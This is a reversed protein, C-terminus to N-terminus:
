ISCKNKVENLLHIDVKETDDLAFEDDYKTRHKEILSVINTIFNRTNVNFYTLITPSKDKKNKQVSMSLLEEEFFDEGVEISIQEENFKYFKIYAEFGEQDIYVEYIGTLDSLLFKCSMLLNNFFDQIYSIRMQRIKNSHYDYINMNMWGAKIDSFDVIVKDM